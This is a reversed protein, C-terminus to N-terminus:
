PTEKHAEDARPADIASQNSQKHQPKQKWPSSRDPILRRIEEERLVGRIVLKRVLMAAWKASYPQGPQHRDYRPRTFRSGLDAYSRCHGGRILEVAKRWHAEQSPTMKRVKDRQYSEEWRREREECEQRTPNLIPHYPEDPNVGVKKAEHADFVTKYEQSRRAIEEAIDDKWKAIAAFGKPPNNLRDEVSRGEEGGDHM